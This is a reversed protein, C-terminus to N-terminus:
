AAKKFGNRLVPYAALSAPTQNAVDEDAAKVISSAVYGIKSPFTPNFSM